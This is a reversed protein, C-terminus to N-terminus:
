GVLLGLSLSAAYVGVMRATGPLAMMLVKPDNSSM